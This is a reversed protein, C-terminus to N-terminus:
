YFDIVRLLPIIGNQSIIRHLLHSDPAWRIPAICLGDWPENLSFGKM